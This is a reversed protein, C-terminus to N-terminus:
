KEEEKSTAHGGHPNNDDDDDIIDHSSWVHPADPAVMEWQFERRIAKHLKDMRHLLLDGTQRNGHLVLIKHRMNNTTTPPPTLSNKQPSHM